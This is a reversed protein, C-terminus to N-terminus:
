LDDAKAEQKARLRSQDERNWQYAILGILLIFLSLVNTITLERYAPGAVDKIMFGLASFAVGFVIAVLSM